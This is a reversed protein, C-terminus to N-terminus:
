RQRYRVYVRKNQSTGRSSLEMSFVAAWDTFQKDVIHQAARVADRKTPFVDLLEMSTEEYLMGDGDYHTHYIERWVQFIKM